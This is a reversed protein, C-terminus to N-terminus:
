KATAPAKRRTSRAAPPADKAPAITERARKLYAFNNPTIAILDWGQEGADNLLDIDDTKRPANNLDINRYDWQPM